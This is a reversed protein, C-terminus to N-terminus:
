QTGGLGKNCASMQELQILEEQAIKYGRRQYSLIRRRTSPVSAVHLIRLRMLEEDALFASDALATKRDSNLAVRTVSFDFTGLVESATGCTVVGAGRFPKILQVDPVGFLRSSGPNEFTVSMASEAIVKFGQSLLARFLSGFIADPRGMGIPFIDIDQPRAPHPRPSCVFRAYGGMVRGEHRDCLELIQEIEGVGRRVPITVWPSLDAAESRVGGCSPVSIGKGACGCGCSTM